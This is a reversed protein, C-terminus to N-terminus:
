SPRRPIVELRMGLGNIEWVPSNYSWVAMDGTVIAPSLPDGSDNSPNATTDFGLFTCLRATSDKVAQTPYSVDTDTTTVFAMYNNDVAAEATFEVTGNAKHASSGAGIRNAIEAILLDATAYFGRTISVTSPAATEPLGGLEFAFQDNTADVLYGPVGQLRLQVTTGYSRSTDFASIAQPSRPMVVGTSTVVDVGPEFGHATVDINTDVYQLGDDLIGEALLRGSQSAWVNAEMGDYIKQLMPDGLDYEKTILDPKITADQSNGVVSSDTPEPMDVPSDVDYEVARTARGVKGAAGGLLIGSMPEYGYLAPRAGPRYDPFFVRTGVSANGDGNLFTFTAPGWWRADDPGQPLGNRLDLWYQEGLASDDNLTSQNAGFAMLRFFGNHYTASLKYGLVRPTRQLAPRIKTGIQRPNQGQSFCWVDDGSAWLVGYPTYAVAWPSECGAAVSMRNVALTSTGGTTQDPEGAILFSSYRRLVLLASELPTGVSTLMVPVLAIIEDGDAAAVLSVNRGNSALVDNGVTGPAFNDSFVLTNEYGVGFHAWAVRNRYAVGLKPRILSNGTGSFTFALWAPNLGSWNAYNNYYAPSDVNTAPVCFLSGNFVFMWPRMPNGALPMVTGSDGDKEGNLALSTTTTSGSTSRVTVALPGDMWPAFMASLPVNASLSFGDDITGPLAQVAGRTQLTGPRVPVLNGSKVLEDDRINRPDSLLNIGGTMPIRYLDM